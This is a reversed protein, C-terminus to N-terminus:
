IGGLELTQGTIMRSKESILIDIANSIDEFNLRSAGEKLINSIVDDNLKEIMGSKDVLSLRITNVTIKESAVEKSLVKSFQEVAAKSASYISNGKSCLPVAITSMNIIRGHGEKGMLKLAERSCLFTGIFNTEFVEKATKAPTLLAFNMSFIGANNVLFDIKKCTKRIESFMKKVQEEDSIDLCFHKYNELGLDANTRSCGIVSLGKKAYYEALYRGISRSTGTIVMVKNNM